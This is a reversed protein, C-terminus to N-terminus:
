QATPDSPHGFSLPVLVWSAVWSSVGVIGCGRHGGVIGDV